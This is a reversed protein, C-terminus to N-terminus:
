TMDRRILQDEGSSTSPDRPRAMICRALRCWTKMRFPYIKLEQSFFRYSNRLDGRDWCIRANRNWHQAMATRIVTKLKKNRCNALLERYARGGEEAVQLMSVSSDQHLHTRFLMDPQDFFVVSANNEMALLANLLTDCCKGATQAKEWAGKVSESRYLSAGVFQVNVAAYLCQEGTLVSYGDKNSGVDLTQSTWSKGDDPNWYEFPGFAAVASRNGSMARVRRELFGPKYMDDDCLISLYTGKAWHIGYTWNPVAGINCQHRLYRIRGDKFGAVVDSTHDRSHNDLILLEFHGYTQALVSEVAERLMEARNCTPIIVSVLESGM